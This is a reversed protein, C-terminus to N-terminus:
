EAPVYRVQLAGGADRLELAGSDDISWTQAANLAAFYQQSLEDLAPEACAMLTTAFEPAIAIVDGDIEYTTFYRNCGDSGSLQGDEDFTASVRETFENTEVAERGNNIGQAVWSGVITAEPAVDFELLSAGDAGFLALQPGTSEYSSVQALNAFYAAEIDMVPQDCAMLTSGVPGFGIEPGDLEYSTFYSNCGGFGGADGNEMRLTVGLREPVPVMEGDVVQGSLMWTVGEIISVEEPAVDPEDSATAAAVLSATLAVAALASVTARPKHM